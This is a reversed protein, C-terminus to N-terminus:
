RKISKVLNSEQIYNKKEEGSPSFYVCSYTIGKM